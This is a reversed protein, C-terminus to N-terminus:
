SNKNYSESFGYRKGIKNLNLLFMSMNSTLKIKEMGAMKLFIDDQIICIKSTKGM